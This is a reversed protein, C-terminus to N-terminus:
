GRAFGVPGRLLRGSLEIALGIGCTCSVLGGCGATVGDPGLSGVGCVAALEDTGSCSAWFGFGAGSLFRLSLGRLAAM